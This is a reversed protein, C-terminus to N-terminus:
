GAGPATFVSLAKVAVLCFCLMCMYIGEMPELKGLLEDLASSFVDMKPQFMANSGAHTHTHTHTLTHTHTSSMHM